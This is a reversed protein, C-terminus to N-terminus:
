EREKFLSLVSILILSFGVLIILIQLENFSEEKTEVPKYSPIEIYSITKKSHQLYYSPGTACTPCSIVGNEAELPEKVTV